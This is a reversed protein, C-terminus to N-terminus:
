EEEAGLAESEGGGEFIAAIWEVIQQEVGGVEEGAIPKGPRVRAAEAPQKAREALQALATMAQVNDKDRELLKLLHARAADPKKEVLELQALNVVTQYSAPDLQVAKSFAARAGANDQKALLM